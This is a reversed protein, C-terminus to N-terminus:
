ANEFELFNTTIVEALPFLTLFLYNLPLKQTFVVSWKERSSGRFVNDRVVPLVAPLVPLVLPLKFNSFSFLCPTKAFFTFLAYVVLFKPYNVLM